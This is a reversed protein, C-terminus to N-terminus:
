MRPRALGCAIVPLCCTALRPSGAANAVIRARLRDRQSGEVLGAGSGSAVLVYVTEGPVRVQFLTVERAGVRGLLLRQVKGGALTRDM